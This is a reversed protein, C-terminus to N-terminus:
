IALRGSSLSQTTSGTAFKSQQNPSVLKPRFYSLRIGSSLMWRLLLKPTLRCQTSSSNRGYAPLPSLQFRSLGKSKM